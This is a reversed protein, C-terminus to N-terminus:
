KIMTKILSKNLKEIDTPSKRGNLYKLMLQLTAKDCFALMGSTIPRMSLVAWRDKLGKYPSRVWKLTFKEERFNSYFADLEESFPETLEM